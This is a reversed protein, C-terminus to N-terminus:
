ENSSDIQSNLKEVFELAPNYGLTKLRQHSAAVEVLSSINRGANVPIRMKPVDTHFFQTTEEDLGLRNYNSKRDFQQLEIVLNIPQENDFAKAGFMKIVDIIGIGRVELYGRSISPAEGMILGKEKEYIIVRDDAVLQHGKQILELAVESKGIGSEGMILVGVGHVTLLVGHVSERKALKASLHNYIEGFLQTSTMSSRLLPVNHENAKAIFEPRVTKDHSVIICPIKKSFIFELRELKAKKTLTKFYNDEKTGIIQIRENEFHDFNGALELGPRSLVSRKIRTNIGEEGAIVELSMDNILDKVTYNVM